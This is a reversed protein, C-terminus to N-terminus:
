FKKEFKERRANAIKYIDDFIIPRNEFKNVHKIKLVKEM